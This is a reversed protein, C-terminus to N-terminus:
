VVDDGELAHLGLGEEGCDKGLGFPDFPFSGEDANVEPVGDDDGFALVGFDGEVAAVDDGEADVVGADLEVEVVFFEVGRNGVDDIAKSADVFEYGGEVRGEGGVGGIVTGEMEAGVVGLEVGGGETGVVGSGDIEEGEGAGEGAGAVLAGDDRRGGGEGRADEEGLDVGDDSVNTEVDVGYLLGESLSFICLAVLRFAGFLM